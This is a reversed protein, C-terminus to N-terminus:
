WLAREPRDLLMAGLDDDADILQVTSDGRWFRLGDIERQEVHAHGAEFVASGGTATDSPVPAVWACSVELRESARSWLKRRCLKSPSKATTRLAECRKQALCHSAQGLAQCSSCRSDRRDAERARRM